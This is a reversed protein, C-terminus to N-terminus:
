GATSQYCGQRHLKNKGNKTEPDRQRPVAGKTCFTMKAQYNCETTGSGNDWVANGQWTYSWEKLTVRGGDLGRRIEERRDLLQSLKEIADDYQKKYHLVEEEASQIKQELEKLEAASMDERKVRVVFTKTGNGYISHESMELWPRGKPLKTANYPSFTIIVNDEKDLFANPHDIVDHLRSRRLRKEVEHIQLQDNLETPRVLLKGKEEGDTIEEYPIDFEDFFLKAEQYDNIYAPKIMM